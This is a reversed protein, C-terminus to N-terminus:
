WRLEMEADGQKERCDGSPSFELNKKKKLANKIHVM